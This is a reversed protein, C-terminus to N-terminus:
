FGGGYGSGTPKSRLDADHQLNQPKKQQPQQSRVEAWCEDVRAQQVVILEKHSRESENAKATSWGGTPTSFISTRMLDNVPAMMRAHSKKSDALSEERAECNAVTFGQVRPSASLEPQILGLLGILTLLATKKM